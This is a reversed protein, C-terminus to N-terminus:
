SYSSQKLHKVFDKIKYFFDEILEDFFNEKQRGSQMIVLREAACLSMASLGIASKIVLDFLKNSDSLYDNEEATKETLDALDSILKKIIEAKKIDSESHKKEKKDKKM